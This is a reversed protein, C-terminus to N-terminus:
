LRCVTLSTMKGEPM